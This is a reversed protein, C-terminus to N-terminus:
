GIVDWTPAGGYSIVVADASDPSRGIRKKIDEKAEIKIGNTQMSWRPACLDAELEADPPLAINDGDQPDLAERFRWYYEARKNVFSLTSSKDRANSKEAFNVPAVDLKKMIAIDYASAGVGIVDIYASGGHVLLISLLAVVSQGDPTTRGPHKQLEDFWNGRRPANVTKDDGGRAVDCGVVLPKGAESEPPAETWRKMAAKVWARPIVQYADDTLTAHLDGYLLASRLPEPLLQLASKYKDDLYPNDKLGAPIFTRSLPTVWDQAPEDWIPAGDPAERENEDGKLRYFWRLEGPKAPNPHGSDLWPSWRKIIWDLHEGVWNASSMIRVRQGDASRARSIMFTYAYEPFQELQDFAIFDYPASAYSEEDGPEQPTGVREMHGFEIRRGDINWVHKSSNYYKKDGYFELSRSILSRELDPFERRLLLSRRQKTRAQGLLLDSKGGGAAGGYLVEFAESEFAAGQPQNRTDPEWVPLMSLLTKIEAFEDPELFDLVELLARAEM